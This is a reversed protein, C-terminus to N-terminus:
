IILELYSGDPKRSMSIVNGKPRKSETSRCSLSTKKLSYVVMVMAIQLLNNPKSKLGLKHLPRMVVRKVMKRKHSRKSSKLNRAM